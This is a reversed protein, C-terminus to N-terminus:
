RRNRPIVFRLATHTESFSVVKNDVLGAAVGATIVDTERIDKRGKQYIVWVAGDRVMYLELTSIAELYRKAQAGLFVLDSGKRRRTSVDAGASRLEALFSADGVHLVSVRM